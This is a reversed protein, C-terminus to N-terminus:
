ESLFRLSPTLVTTGSANCSTDDRLDRVEVATQEAQTRLLSSYLEAFRESAARAGIIKANPCDLYVIDADFTVSITGGRPTMYM